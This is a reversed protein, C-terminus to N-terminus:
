SNEPYITRILFIYISKRKRSINNIIIIKNSIISMTKAMVFYRMIANFITFCLYKFQITYNITHYLIIYYLCLKIKINTKCKNHM